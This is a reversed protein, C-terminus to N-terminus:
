SLNSNGLDFKSIRGSKLFAKKSPMGRARDQASLYNKQTFKGISHLPDSPCLSNNALSVLPKANLSFFNSVQPRHSIISSLNKKQINLLNVLESAPIKQFNLNLILCLNSLMPKPDLRPSSHMASCKAAKESLLLPFLFSIVCPNETLFVVSRRLGLHMSFWLVAIVCLLIPDFSSDVRLLEWFIV